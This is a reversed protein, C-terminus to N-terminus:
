VIKAWVTSGSDKNQIKSVTGNKLFCNGDWVKKSAEIPKWFQVGTCRLPQSFHNYMICARMCDDMKYAMITMIDFGANDQGCNLEFTTGKDEKQSLLKVTPSPEAPSPCDMDDAVTPLSTATQTVTVVTATPNISLTASTTSSSAITPAGTSQASGTQDAGLATGGGDQGVKQGNRDGDRDLGLGLGLGLALALVLIAIIVSLVFTIKRLGCITGEEDQEPPQAYNNYPAYYAGYGAAAHEPPSQPTSSWGATNPSHEQPVYIKGDNGHYPPNSTYIKGENQSGIDM